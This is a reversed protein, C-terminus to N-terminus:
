PKRAVILLYKSDIRLSGDDAENWRRVLEMTDTRLSEFQEAPLFEKAAAMSPATRVLDGALAEVSEGEQVLTREECEVSAALGDFRERATEAVGWEEAAPMGEPPPTYKRGLGILEATFSGPIWATMGVVGGSRVVRMLNEAVVRPRPAIMAGFASGVCDFRDDGFPLEEADGEVWEIAVGERESRERGREVMAPALDSAVVTAGKRAAAISFNGDGAAVDLVEHGASVGCAECLAVAAPELLRSLVSYDGFGWIARHRDKIQAVDM